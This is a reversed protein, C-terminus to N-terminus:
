EKLLDLFDQTLKQFQAKVAPDSNKQQLQGLKVGNQFFIDDMKKRAEKSVQHENVNKLSVVQARLDAKRSDLYRQAAELGQTPTPGAEVKKVLEDTFADVEKAVAIAKQDASVKQEAPKTDYILLVIAGAVLLILLCSVIWQLLKLHRVPRVQQRQSMRKKGASVCTRFM